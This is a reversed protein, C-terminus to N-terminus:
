IQIKRNKIRGILIEMNYKGSKNNGVQIKRHTNESTYKGIQLKGIQITQTQKVFHM